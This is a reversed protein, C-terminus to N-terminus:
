SPCGSKCDRKYFVIFITRIYNVPHNWYYFLNNFNCLYYLTLIYRLNIVSVKFFKLISWSYNEKTIAWKKKQEIYNILNPVDLLGRLDAPCSHNGMHISLSISGHSASYSILVGMVTVVMVFLQRRVGPGNSTKACWGTMRHSKM